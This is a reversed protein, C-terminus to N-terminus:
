RATGAARLVAALKRATPLNCRGLDILPETHCAVGMPVDPALSPLTVGVGAM